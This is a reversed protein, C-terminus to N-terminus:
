LFDGQGWSSTLSGAELVPRPAPCTEIIQLRKSQPVNAAGSVLWSCSAPDATMAAERISVSARLTDAAPAPRGAALARALTQAWSRPGGWRVKKWSLRACTRVSTQPCPHPPRREPDGAPRRPSRPAGTSLCPSEGADVPLALPAAVRAGHAGLSLPRSHAAQRASACRRGPRSHGCAPAQAPPGTGLHGCTSPRGQPFARGDARTALALNLCVPGGPPAPPPSDESAM